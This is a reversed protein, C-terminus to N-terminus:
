RVERGGGRTEEDGKEQKSVSPSKSGVRTSGLVDELSGTRWDGTQEPRQLSM